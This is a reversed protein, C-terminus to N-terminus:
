LDLKEIKYLAVGDSYKKYPKKLIRKIENILWDESEYPNFYLPNVVIFKIGIDYLQKIGANLNQESPINQPLLGDLSKLSFLLDLYQLFSNSRLFELHKKPWMIEKVIYGPCNFLKKEHVTQSRFFNMYGDRFPLDIIACNPQEKLYYYVEHTNNLPSYNFAQIQLYPPYNIIKYRENYYPFLYIIILIIIFFPFTIKSNAKLRIWHIFSSLLISLCILTIAFCNIPWWLRSFFPIFHYFFIYPLPIASHSFPLYPGFSLILFLFGTILCFLTLKLSKINLLSLLVITVSIIFFLPPIHNPSTFTTMHYFYFPTKKLVIDQFSPFLKIINYGLPRIGKIIVPCFFLLSMFIGYLLLLFMIKGTFIINNEKGLFVFYLLFIMTFIILFVGYYWYSLSSLTLLVAGILIYKKKKENKIKFLSLIFFPLWFIAAQQLRGGNVQYFVYPNILFFLGGLFAAITDRYLYRILIFCSLGNITMLIIAFLNYNAPFELTSQFPISSLELLPFGVDFLFSKGSPYAIFDTHHLSAFDMKAICRATFWQYWSNGALDANGGGLVTSNLNEFLPLSLSILIAFYIVFIVIYRSQHKSFLM